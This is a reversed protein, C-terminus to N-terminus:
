KPPTLHSYSIEVRGIQIGEQLSIGVYRTWSPIENCVYSVADFFSYDNSGFKFVGTQTPVDRFTSLSRDLAISVTRGEKV